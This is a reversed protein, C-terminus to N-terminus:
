LRFKHSGPSESSPALVFDPETDRAIRKGNQTVKRKATYRIYRPQGEDYTKDRDWESLQLVLLKCSAISM